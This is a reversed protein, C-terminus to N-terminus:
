GAPKTRELMRFLYSVIGLQEHAQQESLRVRQGHSYKNRLALMAGMAIFRYGEQEQSGPTEAKRVKLSPSKDGFAKGMLATGTEKTLGSRKQVASEFRQLASRVAETFHRDNLLERSAAEVQRHYTVGITTPIAPTAPHRMRRGTRPLGPPRNLEAEEERKLMIAHNVSEYADVTDVEVFDPSHESAGFEAWSGDNRTSVGGIANQIGLPNALIKTLRVAEEDSLGGESRLEDSSIRVSPGNSEARRAILRIAALANVLDAKAATQSELGRLTLACRTDPGIPVYFTVLGPNLPKVVGALTFGLARELERYRPWECTAAFQEYLVQLLEKQQKTPKKKAM